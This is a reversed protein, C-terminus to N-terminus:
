HPFRCVVFSIRGPVAEYHDFQGGHVRPILFLLGGQVRVPGLSAHVHFHPIGLRFAMVDEERGHTEQLVFITDPHENTLDTLSQFRDNKRHGATRLAALLGDTNWTILSLPAM